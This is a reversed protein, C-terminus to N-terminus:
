RRFHSLQQRIANCLRPSVTVFLQHLCRLKADGSCEGIENRHRSHMSLYDEVEYIGESAIHFIQERQFLKQALVTTKGTGSRGLIFSSRNFLVTKQEEDTLEFPLHLERGDRGSILHQVMNSTLSYFKM